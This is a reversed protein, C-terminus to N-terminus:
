AVAWIAIGSGSLALLKVFLMNVKTKNFMYDILLQLIQRFRRRNKSPCPHHLIVPSAFIPEVEDAIFISGEDLSEDQGASRELLESSGVTDGIRGDAEAEISKDRFDLDNVFIAGHGVEFADGARLICFALDVNLSEFKQESGMLFLHLTVM